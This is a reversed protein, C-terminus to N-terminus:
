LCYSLNLAILNYFFKMRSEISSCLFSVYVRLSLDANANALAAVIARIYPGEQMAAAM